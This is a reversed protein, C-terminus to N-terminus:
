TVSAPTMADLMVVHSSVDHVRLLQVGGAVAIAAAAVSAEDRDAPAATGTAAGIFSKRSAGVLVPLGTAVLAGSASLLQWNQAVSKGFGLGPDIAISARPVGAEEAAAARELLADRVSRAVDDYTPETEYRDSYSDDSPPCRRHMLVLGAGRSAALSLIAPDDEGASVDNIIRAGADIAAKAVSACTTDISIPVGLTAIREIIPVVRRVQTEAAVPEAGPRTSEGGVDIIDAGAQVMGAAHAAAAGPDVYRGGDSFSDPTANLIGVIRPRELSVAGGLIMWHTAAPM